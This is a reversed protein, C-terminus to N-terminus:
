EMLAFQIHSPLYGILRTAGLQSSGTEYGVLMFPIITKNILNRLSWFNSTHFVLSFFGSFTLLISFFKFFIRHQTVCQPWVSKPGDCFVNRAKECVELSLCQELSEM